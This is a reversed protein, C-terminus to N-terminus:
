ISRLVRNHMGGLIGVLNIDNLHATRTLCLRGLKMLLHIDPSWSVSQAQEIYDNKGNEFQYFDKSKNLSICSSVNQHSDIAQANSMPLVFFLMVLLFAFRFGKYVQM